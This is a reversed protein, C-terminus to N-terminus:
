QMQPGPDQVGEFKPITMKHKHQCSKQKNQQLRLIQILSVPKAKRPKALLCEIYILGLNEM